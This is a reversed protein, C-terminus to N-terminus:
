GFLFEWWQKPNSKPKANSPRIDKGKESVSAKPLVVVGEGEAMLGLKARAEKEKFTDTQYYRLKYELEAREDTLAAIQKEHAKIQSQLEYNRKVIGFLAWALYAAVALGALVGLHLKRIINM